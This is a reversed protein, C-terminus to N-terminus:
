QNPEGPTPILIPFVWNPSGDPIRASAENAGQAGFSVSDVFVNSSGSKYIIGLKDGASSLKFNTHIYTLVRNSDDCFVVLRSLANITIPPLEFQEPNSFDDTVFWKGAELTCATTKPNYIEFWDAGAGLESDLLSGFSVVENVMLSGVVNNSDIPTPNNGGPNETEFVRDKTCGIAFLALFCLISFYRM